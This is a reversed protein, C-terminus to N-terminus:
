CAEAETIQAKFSVGCSISCFFGECDADASHGARRRRPHEGATLGERLRRRVQEGECGQSDRGRPSRSKWSRLCLQCTSPGSPASAEAPVPGRPEAARRGARTGVQPCSGEGGPQPGPDRWGTDPQDAQGTVQKVLKRSSERQGLPGAEKAPKCLM